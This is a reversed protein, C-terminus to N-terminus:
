FKLKFSFKFSLNISVVNRNHPYDYELWISRKLSSQSICKTALNTALCHEDNFLLIRDIFFYRSRSYLLDLLIDQHRQLHNLELLLFFLQNLYPKYRVIMLIIFQMNEKLCVININNFSINYYRALYM